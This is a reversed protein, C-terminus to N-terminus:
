DTRSENAKLKELRVDDKLTFYAYFSHIFFLGIFVPLIHEVLSVLISGSLLAATTGYKSFFFVISVERTGLGLVSVPLNNIAMVVPVIVMLLGFPVTVGVAKLLIFTNIFESSQYVVSYLILVIKEKIGIDQFSSFLQVAFDRLRPHIKGSAAIFVGRFGASFLLLAIVVFILLPILRPIKLDLFLLGILAACIVVLLNLMKDLVLFSVSRLFPLKNQRDLYLAQLLHSSKMPFVVKFPICGTRISLVEKYPLPCGLASLIRRWKEAGLLINISFSVFVACLLLKPDCGQLTSLVNRADTKLFLLYLILVSVTGPIIFRFIKSSSIKM